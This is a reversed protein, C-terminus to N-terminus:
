SIEEMRGYRREREIAQEVVNTEVAANWDTATGRKLCEDDGEEM